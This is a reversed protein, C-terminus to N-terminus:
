KLELPPVYTRLHAFTTLLWELGHKLVDLPEGIVLPIRHDSGETILPTWGIHLERIFYLCSAKPKKPPSYILGFFVQDPRTHIHTHTFSVKRGKVTAQFSALTVERELSRLSKKAQEVISKVSAPQWSQPEHAQHNRVLEGLCYQALLVELVRQTIEPPCTIWHAEM